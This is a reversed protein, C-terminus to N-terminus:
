IQQWYAWPALTVIAVTKYNLLYNKALIAIGTDM